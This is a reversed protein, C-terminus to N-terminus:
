AALAAPGDGPRRNRWFFGSEHDYGLVMDRDNAYREFKRALDLEYPTLGRGQQHKAYALAMKYVMGQAHEPSRVRWPLVYNARDEDSEQIRRIRQGIAQSTIRRGRETFHSAIETARLGRDMLSRIEDDGIASRRGGRRQEDM